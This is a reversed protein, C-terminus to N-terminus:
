GFDNGLNFYAFDKNESFLVVLKAEGKILYFINEVEENCVFIYEDKDYLEQRLLPMIWHLFKYPKNQFFYIKSFINKYL